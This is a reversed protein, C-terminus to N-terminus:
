HDRWRHDSRLPSKDPVFVLDIQVLAGDLPRRRLSIIDYIKFDMGDLMAIVEAAEPGGVVTAIVSIEVVLIDIKGIAGEMGRIIVAEAGQADIKCLSPRMFERFLTDFRKVKVVYRGTVDSAGGQEEFFSAGFIDQRTIIVQETEADGLALNYIRANIRRSIAEMYPLSEKTPDILHFEAEPYAAYLEPTGEAVGIDFVTQPHFNQRTLVGFLSEWSPVQSTRTLHLGLYGLLRNIVAKAAANVM